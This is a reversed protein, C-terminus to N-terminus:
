GSFFPAPVLIKNEQRVLYGAEASKALYAQWDPDAKLNARKQARDTADEFVWIHVYSNVDGTEVAGYVVPDGLHRRQIAWGYEEYLKMHKLLTGPRCTYTRHDYIM